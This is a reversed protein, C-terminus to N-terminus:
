LLEVLSMNNNGNKLYLLHPKYLNLPLFNTFSLVSNVGIQGFDSTKVMLNLENKQLELVGSKKHNERLFLRRIIGTPM